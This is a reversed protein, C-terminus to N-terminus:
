LYSLLINKSRAKIKGYWCCPKYLAILLAAWVLYVILLNYGYTSRHSEFTFIADSGYQYCVMAIALSNLFLVHLIYFLFPVKGFNVIIKGLSSECFKESIFGFVIFAIGLTMLLYLLSPPYKASNLFSMITLMLDKQLVWPHPDGYLNTYRLLIFGICFSMGLCTFIIRRKNESLTLIPGLLYGLAMVATWPILPYGVEIKIINSLNFEGGQHLIMWLRSGEQLSNGPIADLANHGGIMVLCLLGVLWKPLYILMSLCIMSIGISWFVALEIYYSKLFFTWIFFIITMEAIIFWTGRTLLFWATQHLTRGPRISYLYAGVGALFIFVPACLHTIWRTFYLIPTTTELDLPHDTWSFFIRTHDLAMFILVLGRLLDISNIRPGKFTSVAPSAFELTTASLAM